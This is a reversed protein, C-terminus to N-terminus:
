VLKLPCVGAAHVFDQDSTLLAMDRRICVTAIQAYVTGLQVGRSMCLSWLEAAAVYDEATPYIMPLAQLHTKIRDFDAPNRIGELIEQLITGLIHISHGQEILERLQQAKPDDQPSNRRLVLSWVSTDVLVNM